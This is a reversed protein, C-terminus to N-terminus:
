QKQLVSTARKLVPLNFQHVTETHGVFLFGGSRLHQCCCQLVHEQTPKNFYILVNRCFIVDFRGLLETAWDNRSPDFCQTTTANTFEVVRSGCLLWHFYDPILLLRRAQDLLEPHDRKMALLQYLTNLEMFQLGPQAFVEEKPVREFVKEFMGETRSDRYHVPNRLLTGDADFLGFDVGWARTGFAKQDM